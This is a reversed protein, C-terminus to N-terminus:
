SLDRFGALPSVHEAELMAFVRPSILAALEAEHRYFPMSRDIEACRANALHCHIESVGEPLNRIFGLLLELDIQGCDYIGFLYDNSRFGARSLRHKIYVNWPRM